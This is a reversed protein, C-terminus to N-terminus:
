EYKWILYTGQTLTPVAFKGNSIRSTVIGYPVVQVLVYHPNRKIDAALTHDLTTTDAFNLAIVSFYGADIFEAFVGANGPGVVGASSSPGGTSKGSPEIINRTSSWQQWQGRVGLYYEAITPDEVLFRGNSQGVIPRLITIFSASNPWSTAFSYSQSVGLSVPFALAIVCAACTYVRNRGAPAASVFWDVAYGAAIAAFWAGLGVHKNLSASTHLNAQELPGLIAAVALIVLVWVRPRGLRSVLGVIIGGVALLLVVGTWEWADRLVLLPSAAGSARALTTREFGGLYSSGGILLAALLLAVLVILLLGIRRAAVKGGPKPLALLLVLLVVIPDFLVTSYATANALAL